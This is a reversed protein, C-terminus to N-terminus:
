SSAVAAAAVPRTRLAWRTAPGVAGSAVVFIGALVFWGPRGWSGVLTTMLAPALMLTIEEGTSFVGQYEGP